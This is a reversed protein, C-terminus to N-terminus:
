PMGGYIDRLTDKIEELLKNQEALLRNREELAKRIWEMEMSDDLTDLM